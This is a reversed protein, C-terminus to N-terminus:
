GLVALVAALLAEEDGEPVTRLDLLCRSGETRGVVPPRGLRLPAALLAPVSVAASPLAVGPAAGGGIASETDVARADVGADVLRAVLRGARARLTAMPVEVM